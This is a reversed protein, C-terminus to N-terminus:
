VKRIINGRGRRFRRVLGEHELEALILSIKSDSYNLTEKLEKQTARGEYSDLAELVKKADRDPEKKRTHEEKLPAKSIRGGMVFLIIGVALVGILLLLLMNYPSPRSLVLDLRADDGSLYLNESTSYLLTGEKDYYEATIDYKGDPLQMSYNSKESVLYYSFGDGKIKIVAGELKQMGEAAYIDGYIYASHSISLLLLAFLCFRM